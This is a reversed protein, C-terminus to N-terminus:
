LPKLGRLPQLPRLAGLQQRASPMQLELAPTSAAASKMEIASPDAIVDPQRTDAGESKIQRKQKKQTPPVDGPPLTVSDVATLDKKKKKKKKAVATEIEAEPEPEIFPEQIVAAQKQENKKKNGKKKKKAKLASADVTDGLPTAGNAISSVDYAGQQETESGNNQEREPAITAIPGANAVSRITTQSLEEPKVSSGPASNKALQQQTLREVLTSNEPLSAQVESPCLLTFHAAKNSRAAMRLERSYDAYAVTSSPACEEPVEPKARFDVSPTTEKPLIAHPTAVPVVVSASADIALYPPSCAASSQPSQQMQKLLLLEREAELRLRREEDRQKRLEQVEDSLSRVSAGMKEQTITIQSRLQTELHQSNRECRLLDERLQEERARQEANLMALELERSRAAERQQSSEVRTLDLADRLEKNIERLTVSEAEHEKREREVREMMKALFLADQERKRREKKLRTHYYQMGEADGILSDAPSSSDLKSVPTAPPSKGSAQFMRRLEYIRGFTSASPVNDYPEQKEQHVNSSKLVARFAHREAEAIKRTHNSGRPAQFRGLWHQVPHTDM